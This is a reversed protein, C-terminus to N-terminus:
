QAEGKGPVEVPTASPKGYGRDFGCGWKSRMAERFREREEAPMKEWREHMRRKWERRGPGWRRGRPGHRHFGGLLIKSLVLLGIAQAFTIVRLGFLPPMLWNWLRMTVFGLVVVVVAVIALVRLVKVVKRM